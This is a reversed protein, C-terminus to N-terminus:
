FKSTVSWYVLTLINVTHLSSYEKAKCNKCVYACLSTQVISFRQMLASGSEVKGDARNEM